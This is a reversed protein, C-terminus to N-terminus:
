KKENFNSIFNIIKLNQRVKEMAKVGGPIILLDYDNIKADEIKILDLGPTSIPILLIRRSYNSNLNEM